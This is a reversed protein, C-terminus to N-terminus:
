KVWSFGNCPGTAAGLIKMNPDVAGVLRLKSGCSVPQTIIKKLYNEKIWLRWFQLVGVFNTFNFFFFFFIWEAEPELKCGCFLSFQRWLLLVSLELVLEKQAQIVKM